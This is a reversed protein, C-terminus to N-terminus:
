NLGRTAEKLGEGITNAARQRVRQINLVKGAKAAARDLRSEAIYHEETTSSNTHRLVLTAAARGEVSRQQALFTAAGRRFAHWGKWAPVTENRQYMHDSNESHAAKNKSCTVCRDLLPKIQWRAFSDLNILNKNGQVNLFMHGDAPNGCLARYNDIYECATSDLGVSDTSASTKTTTVKGRWSNRRIHLTAGDATREYDIWDLAAIEGKRAGSCFALAVIAQGEPSATLLNLMKGVEEVSYAGTARRGPLNPPLSGTAPNEGAFLGHDKATEFIGRLTFRVHRMTQGSLKPFDRHVDRFLHAADKREYDRLTAGSIRNELYRSWRNKLAEHSAPKLAKEKEPLYVTKVFEGVTMLVSVGSNASAKVGGMVDYAQAEIDDPIRLKGTKRDKNRNHEPLVPGLVRFQKKRITGGNGDPVTERFRLVWNGRHILISGKQQRM